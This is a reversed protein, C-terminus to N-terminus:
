TAVGSELYFLMRWLRDTEGRENVEVPKLGGFANNPTRRWDPISEPEVLEGLAAVLRQTEALKRRAPESLPKGFRARKPDM